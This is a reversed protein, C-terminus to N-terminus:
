TKIWCVTCLYPPFMNSPSPLFSSASSCRGSNLTFRGAVRVPVNLFQCIAWGHGSLALDILLAPPCFPNPFFHHFLFSTRHQLRHAIIKDRSAAAQKLIHLVIVNRVLAKMCLARVTVFARCAKCSVDTDAWELATGNLVTCVTSNHATAHWECM